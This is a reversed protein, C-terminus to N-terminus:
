PRDYWLVYVEMIRHYVVQRAYIEPIVRGTNVVNIFHTGTVTGCQNIRIIDCLKDSILKGFKNQEIDDSKQWYVHVDIVAEHKRTKACIDQPAASEHLLGLEVFPLPPLVDSKSEENLYIPINYSNGKADVITIIRQDTGTQFIDAATTIVTCLAERPDFSVFVM